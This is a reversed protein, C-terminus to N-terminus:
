ASAISSRASMQVCKRTSAFTRKSTLRTRSPRRPRSPPSTAPRPESTTVSFGPWHIPIASVVARRSGALAYAKSFTRSVVLNVGERGFAAGSMELLPGSGATPRIYNGAVGEKEARLRVMEDVENRNYSNASELYRMVAEKAKPSSGFPNENSGLRLPSSTDIPAASLSALGGLVLGAALLLSRASPPNM